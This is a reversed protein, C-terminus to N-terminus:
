ALWDPTVSGDTEDPTSAPPESVAPESTQPPASDTPADFGTPPASESPTTAPSDSTGPSSDGEEDGPDDGDGEGGGDSPMTIDGEQGGTTEPPDGDAGGSPSSPPSSASPNAPSQSPSAGGGSGNGSSGGSGSSGGGGSGSSGSNGSSGSGGSQGWTPSGQYHGDTVYLANSSNRTLISLEDARLPELFPNLKSNLLELWEDVYITVYSRGRAYDNYNAPMTTFSINEPDLKYMESALWIVNQLTLDTKVYNIFINAIDTIKISDKSALVQKVATMLFEQQTRIRGIDADVYGYRFRLVRLAEDGSLHQMGKNFHIHLNQADDDYNMSQPINFDIGGVADVLARFAKMNVIAYVDVKYGLIDAMREVTGEIGLNAYMSNALKLNWSVNVLTDRPISVVNLSYNVTDLTAAMITDTNGNGDDMGLVLFTYVGRRRGYPAEPSANPSDQSQTADPPRVGGPTTTAEAGPPVRRGGEEIEPPKGGLKLFAVIGGATLALAVLTISFARFLTKKGRRGARRSAGARAASTHKGKGGYIKM